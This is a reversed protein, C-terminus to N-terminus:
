LLIENSGAPTGCRRFSISGQPLYDSLMKRTAFTPM